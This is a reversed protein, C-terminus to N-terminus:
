PHNQMASPFPEAQHVKVCCDAAKTSGDFSPLTLLELVPLKLIFLFNYKNFM